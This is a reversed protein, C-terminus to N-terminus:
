AALRTLVLMLELSSMEVEQYMVLVLQLVLIYMIIATTTTVPGTDWHLTVAVPLITCDQKMDLFITGAAQQTPMARKTDSVCIEEEPLTAIGRLIDSLSTGRLRTILARRTGLSIIPQVRGTTIVPSIVLSCTIVRRM